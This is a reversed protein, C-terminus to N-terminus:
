RVIRSFMMLTGTTGEVQSQTIIFADEVSNTDNAYTFYRSSHWLPGVEM